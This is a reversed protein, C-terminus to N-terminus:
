LKVKVEFKSKEKSTYEETCPSQDKSNEQDSNEQIKINKIMKGQRKRKSKNTNHHRIKSVILRIPNADTEEKEVRNNEILQLTTNLLSQTMSSLEDTKIVLQKAEHALNDFYTVAVATNTNETFDYHASDIHRATEEKQIGLAQNSGGCSRNDIDATQLKGKTLGVLFPTLQEVEMATMQERDEATFCEELKQACETRVNNLVSCLHKRIDEADEM